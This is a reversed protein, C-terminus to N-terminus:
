PKNFKWTKFESMALPLSTLTKPLHRMQGGGMRLPKVLWSHPQPRVIVQKNM